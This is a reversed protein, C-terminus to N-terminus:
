LSKSLQSPEKVLDIFEQPSILNFSIKKILRPYSWNYDITTFTQINFPLMNM